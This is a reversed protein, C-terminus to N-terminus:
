PVPVTIPGAGPPRRSTSNLRDMVQRSLDVIRRDAEDEIPPEANGTDKSGEVPKSLMPAPKRYQLFKVEYSSSGDANRERQALDTVVVSGIGLEALDPHSITLAQPRGPSRQVLSSFAPWAAEDEPTYLTIKAKFEALDDGTYVVFAGSFGPGRRVDWKRPTSGPTSWTLLGPSRQGALVIYDLPSRESM